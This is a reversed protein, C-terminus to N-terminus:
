SDSFPSPTPLPTVPPSSSVPSFPSQQQPRAADEATTTTATIAATANDEDDDDDDDQREELLFTLEQVKKRLKSALHEAEQRRRGEKQLNEKHKLELKRLKKEYKECSAMYSEKLDAERQLRQQISRREREFEQRAQQLEEAARRAREEGQLRADRHARWAGLARELAPRGASGPPIRELLERWAAAEADVEEESASGSSPPGVLAALAAAESRQLELEQMKRDLKESLPRRHEEIRRALAGAERAGKQEAERQMRELLAVNERAMEDLCLSLVHIRRTLEQLMDQDAARERIERELREQLARVEAARAEAAERAERAMAERRKAQEEAAQVRKYLEINEEAKEELCVSLAKLRREYEEELRQLASRADSERRSRPTAM